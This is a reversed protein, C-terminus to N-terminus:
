NEKKLKRKILQQRTKYLKESILIRYTESNELRLYRKDMKNINIEMNRRAELLEIKNKSRRGNSFLPKLLEEFRDFKFDAMSYKKNRDYVDYFIRDQFGDLKNSLERDDDKGMSLTIVDLVMKESNNASKQYFRILSKEYPITIKALDGSLKIKPKKDIEVLKYVGGLAPDDFCTVLKTGIGWM